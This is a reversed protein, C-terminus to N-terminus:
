SRRALVELLAGERLGWESVVYHDVKLEEAVAELICAGLPLVPARRPPMGPLKLRQRLDMRALTGALEAVQETSLEVQNANWVAPGANPKAKAVALRALARATGGSLVTRRAARGYPSLDLGTAEVAERVRERVEKRDERSLVDGVGLEGKLRTAGLPASVAFFVDFRNGVVMELSGGGLDIALAPDDGIYVAARQGLFCLRAEQEGDLVQVPTGITKELRDVVARGNAADRLAATALAVVVHPRVSELGKRLRRAAAVAASVRPQPIAGSSGVDLGLNLLARRKLLPRLAQPPSAECILLQFSSSGLDWVAGISM